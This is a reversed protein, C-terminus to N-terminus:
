IMTTSSSRPQRRRLLRGGPQMKSPLMLTMLSATIRSYFRFTTAPQKAASDTTNYITWECAGCCRAIGYAIYLLLAFCRDSVSSMQKTIDKTHESANQSDIHKHIQKWDHDHYDEYDDQLFIWNNSGSETLLTCYWWLNLLQSITDSIFSIMLSLVLMKMRLAIKNTLLRLLLLQISHHIIGDTIAVITHHAIHSFIFGAYLCLIFLTRFQM